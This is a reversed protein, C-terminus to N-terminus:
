LPNVMGNIARSLRNLRRRDTSADPTATARRRSQRLPKELEEDKETATRPENTLEPWNNGVTAFPLFDSPGDDYVIRRYTPNDVENYWTISPFGIAYDPKQASYAM